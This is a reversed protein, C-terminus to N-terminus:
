LLNTGVVRTRINGSTDCYQDFNKKLITMNEMFTDNDNYSLTDNNDNNDNYLGIELTVINVVYRLIFSLM